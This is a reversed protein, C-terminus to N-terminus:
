PFIIHYLQIPLILLALGLIFWGFSQKLIGTQIHKTLQHGVIAGLLALITIKSILEWNISFHLDSLVGAASNLTIIFLSTGIAKKIDIKFFNVLVPIILFGGGAGLLGTVLGIGIASIIFFLGQHKQNSPNVKTTVRNLIMSKSAFIMLLSFLMMSLTSYDLRIHESRYITRPILPLLFNKTLLIIVMSIFAFGIAELLLVERKIIRPISSALSTAGVVFLSYRVALAPELKFLYVLVPVTLISGGAGLLGLSFGILTASIYGFTEM